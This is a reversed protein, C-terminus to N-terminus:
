HTLSSNNTFAKLAQLFRAAQKEMVSKWQESFGERGAFQSDNISM